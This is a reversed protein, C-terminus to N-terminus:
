HRSLSSLSQYRAMKLYALFSRVMTATLVDNDLSQEGRVFRQLVRSIRQFNILSTSQFIVYEPNITQALSLRVTYEAPPPAGEAQPGTSM